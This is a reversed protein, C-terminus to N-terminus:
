IALTKYLEIYGHTVMECSTDYFPFLPKCTDVGCLTTAKVLCPPAATTTSPTTEPPAATSLTSEPPPNQTVKEVNELISDELSEYM